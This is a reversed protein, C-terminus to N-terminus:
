ELFVKDFCDANKLVHQRERIMEIHEGLFNRTASLLKAIRRLGETMQCQDTCSEIQVPDTM